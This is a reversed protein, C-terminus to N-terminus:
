QQLQPKKPEQRRTNKATTNKGPNGNNSDETDTTANPDQPQTTAPTQTNTGSPPTTSGPQNAPVQASTGAQSATSGPQIPPAPQASAGTWKRVDRNHTGMAQFFATGGGGVLGGAWAGGGCNCLTWGLGIGLVTNTGVYALGRHGSAARPHKALYFASTASGGLLVGKFASKTGGPAIVGIGAGLAAGGLVAWMYRHGKPVGRLDKATADRDSAFSQTALCSACLIITILRRGM